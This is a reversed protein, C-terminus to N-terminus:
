TVLPSGSGRSREDASSFADAKDAMNLRRDEVIQRVSM